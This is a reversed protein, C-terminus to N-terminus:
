KLSLNGFELSVVVVAILACVWVYWEKRFFMQLLRSQMSYRISLVEHRKRVYDDFEDSRDDGFALNPVLENALREARRLKALAREEIIILAVPVAALVTLLIFAPNAEASDLFKPLVTILIIQAFWLFRNVVRSLAEAASARDLESLILDAAKDKLGLVM